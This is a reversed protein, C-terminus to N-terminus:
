STAPSTVTAALLNYYATLNALYSQATSSQANTTGFFNNTVLRNWFDNLSTAAIPQAGWSLTRIYDTLFDNLNNYTVFRSSGTYSEPVTANPSAQINAPNNDAWAFSSPASTFLGSEVLCQSLMYTMQQTSLTGNALMANYLSQLQAVEGSDYGNGVLQQLNLDGTLNNGTAFYLLAGVSFLLIVVGANM